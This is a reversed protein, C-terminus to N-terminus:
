GSFPLWLSSITLTRASSPFGTHDARVCIGCLQFNYEELENRQPFFLFFNLNPVQILDIYTLLLHTPREAKVLAM